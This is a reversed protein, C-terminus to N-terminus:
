GPSLKLFQASAFGRHQVGQLSTDVELFGNIPENTVARVMHGDPLQAIV